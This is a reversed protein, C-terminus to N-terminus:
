AAPHGGFLLTAGLLLLGAFAALMAWRAPASVGRPPAPETVSVGFADLAQRVVVSISTVWAVGLLVALWARSSAVLARAVSLWILAGPTGPVGALSALAYLGLVGWVAHRRFLVPAPGPEPQSVPLFRSLTSAGMLALALHSSWVIGPVLPARPGPVSAFAALALAGNLSALTGVRREPRRQSAITIAGVVFGVGAAVGLLLHVLRAADPLQGIGDLRQELWAAGCTQLAAVSLAAIWPRAGQVLDSTWFHFPAGGLWVAGALLSLSLSTTWLTRPELEMALVGWQERVVSTSTAVALLAAAMASLALAPALVWLLKLACESHLLDDRQRALLAIVLAAVLLPGAASVLAHQTSVAALLALPVLAFLEFVGGRRRDSWLSFAAAALLLVLPAVAPLLAIM